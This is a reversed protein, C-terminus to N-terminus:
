NLVATQGLGMTTKYGTGCFPGFAVLTALAQWWEDALQKAQLVHFSMRGVGGVYRRHGDAWTRSGMNFHSIALHAYAVDLAAANIQHAVPAFQNWRPWWSQMCLYPDPMPHSLKGQRFTTPTDFQFRYKSQPKAQVLSAYPQHYTTLRDLQLQVSHALINVDPLRGLGTILSETLSDDLLAVRWSLQDGQRLLAQSFPKVPLQHVQVALAPDSAELACFLIAHMARQDGFNPRWVSETQVPINLITPM